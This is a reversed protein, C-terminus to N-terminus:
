KKVNSYKKKYGLYFFLYGIGLTGLIYGFFYAPTNQLSGSLLEKLINNLAILPYIWFIIRWFIQWGNRKGM